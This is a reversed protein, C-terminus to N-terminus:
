VNKLGRAGPRPTLACALAECCAEFQTRSEGFDDWALLIRGDSTIDAVYPSRWGLTHARQDTWAELWARTSPAELLVAAVPISLNVFTGELPPPIGPRVGFVFTTPVGRVFGTAVRTVISGPCRFVDPVFPVASATVFGAAALAREFERRNRASALIAGAILLCWVTVLGFLELM